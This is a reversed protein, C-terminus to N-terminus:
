VRTAFRACFMRNRKAKISEKLISDTLLSIEDTTRLELEEFDPQSGMPDITRRMRKRTFFEGKYNYNDPDEYWLLTKRWKPDNSQLVHDPHCLNNDEGRQFLLRRAATHIRGTSKSFYVTYIKRVTPPQYFLSSIQEDSLETETSPLDKTKQKQKGPEITATGSITIDSTLIKPSNAKLHTTSTTDAVPEAVPSIVPADLAMTMAPDLNDPDPTPPLASQDM